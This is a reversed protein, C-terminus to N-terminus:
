SFCPTAAPALRTPSWGQPTGCPTTPASMGAPVPWPMWAAEKVASNRMNQVFPDWTGEEGSTAAALAWFDDTDSPSAHSSTLPPDGVSWPSAAKGAAQQPGRRGPRSGSTQTGGVVGNTVHEKRGQSFVIGAAAWTEQLSDPSIDFSAWAKSPEPAAVPPWNGAASVQSGSDALAWFDGGPQRSEAQPQRRSSRHKRHQRSKSSDDVQPDDRGAPKDSYV